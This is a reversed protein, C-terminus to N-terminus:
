QQSQAIAHALIMRTLKEELDKRKEQTLPTRTAAIGIQVIHQVIGGVHPAVNNGDKPNSLIGLFHSCIESFHTLVAQAVEDQQGDEDTTIANIAQQMDTFCHASCALLSTLALIRVYKM